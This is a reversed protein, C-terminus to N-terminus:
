QWYGPTTYFAMPQNRTDLRGYQAVIPLSSKVVISYQEERPVEFGQLQDPNDLRICLVREGYIKAKIGKKPERDSFFFSLEVEVPVSNVNLMILSEHGKIPYDGPPPLEGDPFVWLNKGINRGKTTDM